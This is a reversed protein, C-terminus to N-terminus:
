SCPILRNASPIRQGTKFQVHQFLFEEDTVAPAAPIRLLDCLEKLNSWLKGQRQWGAESSSTHQIANTSSPRLESIQIQTMTMEQHQPSLSNTLNGKMEHMTSALKQADTKPMTQEPYIDSRTV